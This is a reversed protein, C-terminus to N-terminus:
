RPSTRRCRFTPIAGASRRPLAPPRPHLLVHQREVAEVLQDVGVRHQKDEAQREEDGDDRLRAISSPTVNKRSRRLPPAIRGVTIATVATTAKEEPMRSPTEIIPRVMRVSTMMRISAAAGFAAMRCATMIQVVTVVTQPTQSAYPSGGFRIMFAFRSGCRAAREKKAVAARDREDRIEDDRTVKARLEGPLADVELRHVHEVRIGFIDSKKLRRAMAFHQRGDLEDFRMLRVELALRRLDDCRSWCPM